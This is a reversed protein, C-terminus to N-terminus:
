ADRIELEKSLNDFNFGTNTSPKRSYTDTDSILDIVQSPLKEVYESKLNPQEQRKHEFKKEVPSIKAMQFLRSQVQNLKQENADIEPMKLKSMWFILQIFYILFALIKSFELGDHKINEFDDDSYDETQGYYMLKALLVM